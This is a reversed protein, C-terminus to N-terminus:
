QFPRGESKAKCRVINVGVFISWLNDIARACIVASLRDSFKHLWTRWKIYEKYWPFSIVLFFHLLIILEIFDYHWFHIIFKHVGFVTFCNEYIIVWDKLHFLSLFSHYIHEEILDECKIICQFIYILLIIIIFKFYLSWRPVFVKFQSAYQIRYWINLIIELMNDIFMFCYSIVCLYSYLYIFYFVTNFKM